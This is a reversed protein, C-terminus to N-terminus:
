LWTSKGSLWAHLFLDTISFFLHLCLTAARLCVELCV